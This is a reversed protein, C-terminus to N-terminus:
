SMAFFTTIKKGEDYVYPVIFTNEFTPSVFSMVCGVETIKIKKKRIASLFTFFTIRDSENEFVM